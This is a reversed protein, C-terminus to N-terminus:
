QDVRIPLRGKPLQRTDPVASGGNNVPSELQGLEEKYLDSQSEIFLIPSILDRVGLSYNLRRMGYAEYAKHPTPLGIQSM